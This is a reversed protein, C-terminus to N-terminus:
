LFYGFSTLDEEDWGSDLVLQDDTEGHCGLEGGLIVDQSIPVEDSLSSVKDQALM